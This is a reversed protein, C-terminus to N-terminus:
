WIHHKLNNSFCGKFPHKRSVPCMEVLLLAVLWLFDVSLFNWRPLDDTDAIIESQDAKEDGTLEELVTTVAEMLKEKMGTWKEESELQAPDVRSWPLVVRWLPEFWYRASQVIKNAM